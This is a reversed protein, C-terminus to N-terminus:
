TTNTCKKVKEKEKKEAVKNKWIPQNEETRNETQNLNEKYGLYKCSMQVNKWKKKEM